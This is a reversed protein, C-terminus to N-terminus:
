TLEDDAAPIPWLGEGSPDVAPDTATGVSSGAELTRRVTAIEEDTLTPLGCHIEPMVVPYGYLWVRIPLAISWSTVGDPDVVPARRNEIVLDSYGTRIKVTARPGGFMSAILFPSFAKPEEFPQEPREALREADEDAWVITGHRHQTEAHDHQLACTAFTRDFYRLTKGCVTEVPEDEVATGTPYGFGMRQILSGLHYRLGITGYAIEISCSESMVAHLKKECAEDLWEPFRNRNSQPIYPTGIRASMGITCFLMGNPTPSGGDMCDTMTEDAPFPWDYGASRPLLEGVGYGFLSIESNAPIWIESNSLKAVFRGTSFRHESMANADQRMYPDCAGIGCFVPERPKDFSM